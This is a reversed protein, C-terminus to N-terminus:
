NRSLHLTDSKSEEHRTLAKPRAQAQACCLTDVSIIEAIACQRLRNMRHAGLPNRGIVHHLAGINGRPQHVGINASRLAGPRTATPRIKVIAVVSPGCPEEGLSARPESMDRGRRAHCDASKTRSSVAARPAIADARFRSWDTAVVRSCTGRFHVSRQLRFKSWCKTRARNRIARVIGDSRFARKQPPGNTTVGRRGEKAPERKQGHDPAPSCHAAVQHSLILILDALGPRAHDHAVERKATQGM